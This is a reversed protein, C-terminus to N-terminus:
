NGRWLCGVLVVVEVVVEGGYGVELIDRWWGSKTIHRLVEPMEM